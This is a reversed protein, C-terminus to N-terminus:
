VFNLGRVRVADPLPEGINIRCWMAAFRNRVEEVADLTPQGPLVAETVDKSDRM